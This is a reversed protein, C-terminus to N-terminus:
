QGRIVPQMEVKSETRLITAIAKTKAGESTEWPEIVISGATGCGSIGAIALM